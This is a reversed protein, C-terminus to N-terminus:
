LGDKMLYVELIEPPIRETCKPQSLELQQRARNLALSQNYSQEAWSIGYNTFELQLDKLQILFPQAEQEPLELYKVKLISARTEFESYALLRDHVSSIPRSSYVGEKIQEFLGKLTDLKETLTETPM